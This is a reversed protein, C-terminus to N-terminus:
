KQEKLRKEEEPKEIYYKIQREEKEEELKRKKRSEFDERTERSIFLKAKKKSFFEPFMGLENMKPSVVKANLINDRSGRSLTRFIASNIKGEEEQRKRRTIESKRRMVIDKVERFQLPTEPKKYHEKRDRRELNAFIKETAKAM